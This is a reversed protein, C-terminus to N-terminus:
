TAETPKRSAQRGGMNFTRSQALFGQWKEIKSREEDDDQLAKDSVDVGDM